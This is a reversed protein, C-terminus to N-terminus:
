VIEIPHERVQGNRITFARLEPEDPQVLSLILYFCEPYYALRIDTASPYAETTPHSHFIAYLREGRRAVERTIRLIDGAPISYRIPSQEENPTPYFVTAGDDNGALIGCAECPLSERAHRIM